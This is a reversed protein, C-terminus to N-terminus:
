KTDDAHVMSQLTELDAQHETMRAKRVKAPIAVLAELDAIASNGVDLARDASIIGAQWAAAAAAIYSDFYAIGEDPHAAPQDLATENVDHIFVGRVADGLDALMQRGVEVDGQGSDGVFVLGYEPFLQHYRRINEMKRDAM